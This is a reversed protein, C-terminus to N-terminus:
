KKFSIKGKFGGKKLKAKLKKYEKKSMASKKVIIKGKYGAHRARRGIIGFVSRDIWLYDYDMAKDVIAATRKPTLGFFYNRLFFWAGVLRSKKKAKEDHIYIVEVNEKGLVEELAELNRRSVVEGGELINKARKYRIFLLKPM